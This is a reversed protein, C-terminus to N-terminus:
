RCSIKVSGQIYENNVLNVNLNARKSNMDLNDSPLADFFRKSFFFENSDSKPFANKFYKEYKSLIEFPREPDWM